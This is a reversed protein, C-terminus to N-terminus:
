KILKADNNLSATSKNNNIDTQPNNYCNAGTDKRTTHKYQCDKMAILINKLAVQDDVDHVRYQSLDKIIRIFRNPCIHIGNVSYDQLTRGRYKDYDVFPNERQYRDLRRDKKKQIHEIQMLEM